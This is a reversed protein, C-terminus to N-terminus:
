VMKKKSFYIFFLFKFSLPKKTLFFKKVFDLIKAKSFFKMLKM